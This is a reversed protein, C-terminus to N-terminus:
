VAAFATPVLFRDPGLRAALKRVVTPALPVFVRTGAPVDSPAVVEAGLYHHGIRNVDEDVFFPVPINRAALEGALWSAANSTGFLGIRGSKALAVAEEAIARLVSLANRAAVGDDPAGRSLGVPITNPRALASIEKQIWDTTLTTVIYGAAVLVRRLADPSFHTVHDAILLDFPNQRFNPVEILLTGGPSFRPALAQLFSEPGVFHELSHLMTIFDFRGPVSDIGGVYLAEVGPINEIRTRHTDALENGALQWGPLLQSFSRLLGGNGCGIDLMRGQSPLALERQACGLLELSRPKAVTETFVIQEAGSSQAYIEYTRYIEDIEALFADDAPKQVIGCHGCLALKGGSPWPRSDSTVRQLDSFERLEDLVGGCLHCHFSM